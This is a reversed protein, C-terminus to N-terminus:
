VEESWAIWGRANKAPQLAELAVAMRIRSLELARVRAREEDREDETMKLAHEMAQADTGDLPMRRRCADRVNIKEESVAARAAYLAAELFEIDDLLGRVVGGAPDELTHSAMRMKVRDTKECFM